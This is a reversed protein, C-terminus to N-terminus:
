RVPEVWVDSQKIRDILGQPDFKKLNPPICVIVTRRFQSRDRYLVSATHFPPDSPTATRVDCRDGAGSDLQGL